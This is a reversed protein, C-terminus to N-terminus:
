KSLNQEMKDRKEKKEADKAAYAAAADLISADEIYQPTGQVRNM